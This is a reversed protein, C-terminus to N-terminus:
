HEVAANWKRPQCACAPCCCLLAQLPLQLVLMSLPRPLPHLEHSAQLGARAPVFSPLGAPAHVTGPQRESAQQSSGKQMGQLYANDSSM